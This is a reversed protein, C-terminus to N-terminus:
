SGTSIPETPAPTEAATAAAVEGPVTALMGIAAGAILVIVVGLGTYFGIQELVRTTTTSAVPTGGAAVGNNWVPSLVTGLAFWAGSAAALWAGAMAEVRHASIILLVGGLFAGGGPLIDMWLRQTNYTWSVDPTYAYHFYPGIFPVLGGWAGLLVLLVGSLVGRRRSIRM